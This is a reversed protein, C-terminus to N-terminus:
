CGALTEAVKWLGWYRGRGSTGRAPHDRPSFGLESVSRRLHPVLHLSAVARGSVATRGTEKAWSLSLLVSCTCAAGGGLAAVARLFKRIV